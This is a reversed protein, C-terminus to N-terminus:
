SAVPFGSRLHPKFTRIFAERAVIAGFPSIRAMLRIAPHEGDPNDYGLRRALDLCKRAYTWDRYGGLVGALLWLRGGIEAAYCTDTRSVVSALVEYQARACEIQHGSSMSRSRQYLVCGVYDAARFRLGRLALSLHTAQDENFKTREDVDFGGAALFIERRYIGCNTVTHVINHRVADAALEGDNWSRVQLVAGTRDDRDETGFLVVDAVDRAIWQRAVRVFEPALADDADHFHVWEARAEQALRNKGPSPGTNVDSRVVRVGFRRAMEGTRDSSADDYLWIEDFPETQAAVSEFLRPLTAEANRAPIALALRPRPPLSM